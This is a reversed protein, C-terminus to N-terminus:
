GLGLQLFRQETLNGGSPLVVPPDATRLKHVIRRVIPVDAPYRDHYLETRANTHKRLPRLNPPPLIHAHTSHRRHPPVTQTPPSHPIPLDHPLIRRIITGTGSGMTKTDAIKSFTLRQINPTSTSIRASFASCYYLPTTFIFPLNFFVCPLSENPRMDGYSLTFRHYFSFFVDTRSM